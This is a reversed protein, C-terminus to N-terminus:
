KKKVNKNKSGKDDTDETMPFFRDIITSISNILNWITAPLFGMMGIIALLLTGAYQWNFNNIVDAVGNQSVSLYFLFLMFWGFASGLFNIWVQHLWWFYNYKYKDEFPKENSRQFIWVGGVGYFLSMLCGFFIILSRFLDNIVFVSTASVTAEMMSM